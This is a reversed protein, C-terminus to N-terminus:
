LYFGTEELAVPRLLHKKPKEKKFFILNSDSTGDSKSFVPDPKEYFVTMVDGSVNMPLQGPLLDGFANHRFLDALLCEGLGSTIGKITAIQQLSKSYKEYICAALHPLKKCSFMVFSQLINPSCFGQQEIDGKQMSPYTDFLLQWLNQGNSYNVVSYELLLLIDEKTISPLLGLEFARIICYWQMRHSFMGHLPGSAKKYENFLRHERVFCCGAEVDVFGVFYGPSNKTLNIGYHREKELLLTNLMGHTKSDDWPKPYPWFLLGTDIPNDLDVTPLLISHARYFEALKDELEQFLTLCLNLNQFLTQIESFQDVIKNPINGQEDYPIPYLIKNPLPRAISVIYQMFRDTQESSYLANIYYTIEDNNYLFACILIIIKQRNTLVKEPANGSKFGDMIAEITEFPIHENISDIISNQSEVNVASLLRKTEPFIGGLFLCGQSLYNDKNLGVQTHWSTFYVISLTCFLKFRDATFNPNFPITKHFEFLRGIEYIDDYCNLMALSFSDNFTILELIVSRLKTTIALMLATQGANNKIMRNDIHNKKMCDIIARAISLEYMAIFVMLLNNGDKDTQDLGDPTEKLADQLKESAVLLEEDLFFDTMITLFSM